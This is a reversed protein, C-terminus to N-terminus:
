NDRVARVPLGYSRKIYDMDYHNCWSAYRYANDPYSYNIQSTWYYDWNTMDEGQGAHLLESGDRYGAYPLFISNGNTGTYRIGDIGNVREEQMTTNHYLENWEGSTPTRAGSGLVVTAVDDSPELVRLNDVTGNYSMTCYKTLSRWSGNCLSYTSCDYVDKASTEGWAFYCGFVEPSSAGINVSYWQVSLGLDVWEGRTEGCSIPNVNTGTPDTATSNGGDSSDDNRDCSALGVTMATAFLLMAM